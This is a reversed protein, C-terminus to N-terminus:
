GLTYIYATSIGHKRALLNVSTGKKREAKLMKRFRVLESGTRRIRKGNQHKGIAKAAKDRSLLNQAVKIIRNLQSIQQSNFALSMEQRNQWLYSDLM